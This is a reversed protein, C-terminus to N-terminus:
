QKPSLNNSLCSISKMIHFPMHGLRLHWLLDIKNDTSCSSASVNHNVSIVPSSLPISLNCVNASISLAPSTSLSALTLTVSSHYFYLRKSARSIELPRRLSPAKVKYRNPLTILFPMHLPKIDQLLHKHPTM